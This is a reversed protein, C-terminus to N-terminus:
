TPSNEDAKEKQEDENEEEELELFIINLADRVFESKGMDLKNAFKELKEIQDDYLYFGAKVLKASDKLPKLLDSLKSDKKKM